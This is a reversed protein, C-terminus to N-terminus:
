LVARFGMFSCEGGNYAVSCMALPNESGGEDMGGMDKPAFKPVTCMNDENSMMLGLESDGAKQAANLAAMGETQARDPDVNSIRLAM